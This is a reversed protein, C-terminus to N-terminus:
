RVGKRLEVCNSTPAGGRRRLREDKRTAEFPNRQPRGVRVRANVEEGSGRVQRGGAVPERPGGDKRSSAM